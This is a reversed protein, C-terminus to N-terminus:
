GTVCCPCMLLGLDSWGRVECSFGSRSLLLFLKLHGLDGVFIPASLWFGDGHFNSVRWVDMGQCLVSVDADVQLPGITCCLLPSHGTFSPALNTWRHICILAASFLYIATCTNVSAPIFPKCPVTKLVQLGDYTPFPTSGSIVHGSIVHGSTIYGSTIHCSTVDYGSTVDCSTVNNERAKNKSYYYYLIYWQLTPHACHYM